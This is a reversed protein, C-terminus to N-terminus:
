IDKLHPKYSEQITVFQSSNRRSTAIWKPNQWFGQEYGYIPRLEFFDCGSKKVAVFAFISFPFIAIEIPNCDHNRGVALTPRFSTANKLFCKPKPHFHLSSHSLTQLTRNIACRYYNFNGMAMTHCSVTTQTTRRWFHDFYTSEQNQPINFMLYSNPELIVYYINTRWLWKVIRTQACRSFFKSILCLALFRVFGHPKQPNDSTMAFPSQPLRSPPSLASASRRLQFRM